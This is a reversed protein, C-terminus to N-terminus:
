MLAHLILMLIATAGIVIAVMLFWGLVLAAGALGVGLLWLPYARTERRAVSVCAAAATLVFGPVSIRWDPTAWLQGQSIAVVIFTLLGLIAAALGAPRQALWGSASPDAPRLHAPKELSGDAM